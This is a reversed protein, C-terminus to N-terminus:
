RRPEARFESINKKIFDIDVYLIAFFKVDWNTISHGQVGCEGCTVDALEMLKEVDEISEVDEDFEIKIQVEKM